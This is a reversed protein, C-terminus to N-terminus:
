WGDVEVPEGCKSCVCGNDTEVIYAKRERCEKFWPESRVTPTNDVIHECEKEWIIMHTYMVACNLCVTWHEAFRQVKNSGCFYCINRNLIETGM